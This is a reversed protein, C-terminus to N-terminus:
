KTWIVIAGCTNTSKFRVPITAPGSYVEIGMVESPPVLTALDTLPPLVVDDIVVQIPCKSSRTSEAVRRVGNSIHISPIGHLVDDLTLPTRQKIEDATIFTGYGLKRREEFEAMRTVMQKASVVVTDLATVIRKMAFSFRLTDADGVQIAAAMPAYGVRHVTLLYQGAPVSLIRFRGNSGTMVQLSSGLVAITADGLAVLNTDSVLGDIVSRPRAAQANLSRALGASDFAATLCAVIVLRTIRPVV